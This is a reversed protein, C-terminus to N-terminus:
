FNISNSYLPSYSGTGQSANNKNVSERIDYWVSLTNTDSSESSKFSKDLSSELWLTLDIISNVPSSITLTQASSIRFKQILIRSAILGVIIFGIILIVMALEIMTFARALKNKNTYFRM